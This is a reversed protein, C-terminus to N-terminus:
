ASLYRRIEEAAMNVAHPIPVSVIDGKKAYEELRGLEDMLRIVRKPTFWEPPIPFASGSITVAPFQQQFTACSRKLGHPMACLIVSHINIGANHCATMGLVVNELFNTSEKELILAHSPVGDSQILSAYFDAESTFGEPIASRGKGTIVIYPAKHNKWLEVAYHAVLPEYHGLVFIADARPLASMPLSEVLFDTIIDILPQIEKM